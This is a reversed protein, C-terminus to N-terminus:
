PYPTFSIPTRPDSNSESNRRIGIAPVLTYGGKSLLLSQHTGDTLIKTLPQALLM